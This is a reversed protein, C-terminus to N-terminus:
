RKTEVRKSADSQITHEIMSKRLNQTKNLLSSLITARHEGKLVFPEHGDVTHQDNLVANSSVKVPAKTVFPEVLSEDTDEENALVSTLM